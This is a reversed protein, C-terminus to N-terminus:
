DISIIHLLTNRQVNFLLVSKECLLNFQYSLFDNANLYLRM